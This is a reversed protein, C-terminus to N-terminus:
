LVSLKIIIIIADTFNNTKIKITLPLLNTDWNRLLLRGWLPSPLSHKHIEIDISDNKILTSLTLNATTVELFDFYM